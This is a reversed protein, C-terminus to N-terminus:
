VVTVDGEKQVEERNKDIVTVVVHVVEGLKLHEQLKQGDETNIIKRPRFMFVAIENTRRSEIKGEQFVTGNSDILKITADNIPPETIVRLAETNKCEKPIFIEQPKKDKM